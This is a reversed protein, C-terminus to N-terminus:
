HEPDEDHEIDARILKRVYNTKNPVSQLKEIVDQDHVKHLALRLQVLNEKHYKRDYGAKNFREKKTIHDDGKQGSEIM